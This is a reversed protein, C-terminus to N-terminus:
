KIKIKEGMYGTGTPGAPPCHAVAQAQTELGFGGRCSPAELLEAWWWVNAQLLPHNKLHDNECM